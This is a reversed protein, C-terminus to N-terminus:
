YFVNFQTQLSGQGVGYGMIDSLYDYSEDRSADIIFRGKLALSYQNKRYEIQPGVSIIRNRGMNEGDVVFNDSLLIESFGGVVFNKYYAGVRLNLALTNGIENKNESNGITDEVGSNFTYSFNNEVFFVDNKKTLILGLKTTDSGMLSTQVEEDSLTNLNLQAYGEVDFDRQTYLKSRASLALPGMFSEDKAQIMSVDFGIGIANKNFGFPYLHSSLIYMSNIGLSDVDKSKSDQRFHRTELGIRSPRHVHSKKPIYLRTGSRAISSTESKSMFKAVTNSIKDRSTEPAMISQTISSCIEEDERIDLPLSRHLAEHIHLSILQTENLNKASPFFRTSAYAEPMTRAYILGTADNTFAGLEVLQKTSLGKKTMYLKTNEVEPILAGLGEIKQINYSKLLAVAKIRSEFIPGDKIAVFSQLDDGNDGNGVRVPGSVATAAVAFSTSLLFTLLVLRKM